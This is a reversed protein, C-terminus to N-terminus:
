ELLARRVHLPQAGGGLGISLDGGSDGLQSGLNVADRGPVSFVHPGHRGGEQTHAVDHLLRRGLKSCSSRCDSDISSNTTRM